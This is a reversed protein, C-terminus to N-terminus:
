IISPWHARLTQTASRRHGFQVLAETRTALRRQYRCGYVFGTKKVLSARDANTTEHSLMAVLWQHLAFNCYTTDVGWHGHAAQAVLHKPCYQAWQKTISHQGPQLTVLVGNCSILWWRSTTCLPLATPPTHLTSLQVLYHRCEFAWSSSTCSLTNSLMSSLAIWKQGM